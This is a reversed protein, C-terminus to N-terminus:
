LGGRGLLLIWKHFLTTDPVRKVHSRHVFFEAISDTAVGVAGLHGVRTVRFPGHFPTVLKPKDTRQVFVLDGPRLEEDVLHRDAHDKRKRAAADSRDQAHLRRAALAAPDGQGFLLARPAFGTTAHIADNYAAVTRPLSLAQVLSAAIFNESAGSDVLVRCPRGRITAKLIIPAAATDIAAALAYRTGPKNSSTSAPTAAQTTVQPAAEVVVSAAQEATGRRCDRALHGYARCQHCRVRRRRESRAAAVMPDGIALADGSHFQRALNIAADLTIPNHPTVGNRLTEDLGEIFYSVRDEEHMNALQAVIPRFAAIYASLSGDMRLARLRRRALLAHNSPRYAAILQAQFVAWTPANGAMYSPLQAQVTAAADGRLLSIAAAMRHTDPIDHTVFQLELVALWRAVDETELGSFTECASLFSFSRGPTPMAAAFAQLVAQLDPSLNAAM